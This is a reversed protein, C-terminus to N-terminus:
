RREGVFYHFFNLYSVKVQFCKITVNVSIIQSKEVAVLQVTGTVNSLDTFVPASNPASAHSKFKLVLTNGSPHRTYTHETSGIVNTTRPLVIPVRSRPAYVPLLTSTGSITSIRDFDM